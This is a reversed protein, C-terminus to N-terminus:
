LMSGLDSTVTPYAATMSKLQKTTLQLKMALACFNILEGYEPGFMHAGIITDTATDVLIKVAATTEGTRYNSYWGSTDTYRVDVDIGIAKARRRTPGGQRTRPHHVRRNTDRQLRSHHCHEQGHEVRRSQRRVRVFFAGSSASYWDPTQLRRGSNFQPVRSQLGNCSGSQWAALRTQFSWVM